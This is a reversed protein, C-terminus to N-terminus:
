MLKGSIYICIYIHIHIHEAEPLKGWNYQVMERERKREIYMILYSSADVDAAYSIFVTSIREIIGRTTNMELTKTSGSAENM